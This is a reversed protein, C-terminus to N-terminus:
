RRNSRRCFSIFAAFLNRQLRKKPALVEPHWQVGMVFSHNTSEIGEILGDEATANIILNKGPEKIAQHHTTNVELDRRQFIRHLLTGGRVAIRHGGIKKRAAQEHEAAHPIQSAIDQYLSGGLAVNIAQAGGCIGLIPMDRKLALEISQLEFMTRDARIHGLAKMPQEGYYRPDIDFNGGSVVLGDLREVMLRIKARSTPQPIVIPLGGGAEIATCYRHPLFLMPEQSSASDDEVSTDATIGILPARRGIPRTM